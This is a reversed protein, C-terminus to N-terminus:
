RGSQFVAILWAFGIAEEQVEITFRTVDPSAQRPM